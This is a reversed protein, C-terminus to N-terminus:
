WRGLGSGQSPVVNFTGTTNTTREGNVEFWQFNVSSLLRRDELIECTLRRHYVGRRAADARFEPSHQHKRPKRTNLVAKSM